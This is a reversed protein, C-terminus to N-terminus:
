DRYPERRLHKKLADVKHFWDLLHTYTYKKAIKLRQLANGLARQDDTLISEPISGM